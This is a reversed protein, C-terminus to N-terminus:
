KSVEQWVAEAIQDMIPAIAPNIFDQGQVYGGHRTGHGYQLLIVVPTGTKILNTNEWIIFISGGSISTRYTWSDATIGANVPTASALAAVGAQGYADLISLIRGKDNNRLFQELSKFDGSHKFSIVGM